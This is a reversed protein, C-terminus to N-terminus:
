LQPFYTQLPPPSKKLTVCLQSLFDAAGGVGWGGVNGEEPM